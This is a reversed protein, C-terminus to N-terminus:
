RHLLRPPRRAYEPTEYTYAEEATLHLEAPRGSSDYMEADFSSMGAPLQEYEGEYEGEGLYTGDGYMYSGDLISGARYRADCPVDCGPGTFTPPCYDYPSACQKCGLATALTAVACLGLLRMQWLLKRDM